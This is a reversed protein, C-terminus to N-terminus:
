RFELPEDNAASARLGAVFKSTTDHWNGIHGGDDPLGRLKPLLDELRDALLEAHGPKIHGEADSHVMLAVLPDQPFTGAPWRGFPAGKPIHGWDLMVLDDSDGNPFTVRWIAYGALKALQDRWRSFAPYGGSWVEDDGHWVTLAM